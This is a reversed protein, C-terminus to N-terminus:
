EDTSGKQITQYRRYLNNLRLSVTSPSIGLIESIERNTIGQARMKIINVDTDDRGVSCLTDILDIYDRERSERALNDLMHSTEEKTKNRYLDVLINKTMNFIYAAPNRVSAGGSENNVLEVVKLAAQSYAEELELLTLNDTTYVFELHVLARAMCALIIEDKSIRDDLYEGFLITFDQGSTPTPLRRYLDKIIAM